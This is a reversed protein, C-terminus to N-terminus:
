KKVKFILVAPQQKNQDFFFANSLELKSRLPGQVYDTVNQTQDHFANLVIYDAQNVSSDMSTLNWLVFKRQAYYVAYPDINEGLLVADQPTNDKIWLFAQKMQLYSTTKSKIMDNGFKLSSYAGFVLVIIIFAIALYKSYKKMYDSIISIAYSSILLFGAFSLFLYRDEAARLFFIFFTMPALLILILFLHSKIKKVKKISDFAIFVEFLAIFFGIFFFLAFIFTFDHSIFGLTYFAFGPKETASEAYVSAAPLISGHSMFNLLVFIILPIAGIIGAVWFSKNKLFKHKHEIIVFLLYIAGIIGYFYRTLIALSMFFISIAFYKTEIKQYSIIFFYISVLCFFLSPVDSMIRVTYFLHIWTVSLIFAAILGVKKDYLEKGILYIFFVSLISPLLGFVILSIFDSVDIRLLISWLFPVLPPRIIAEHQIFTTNTWLHFIMNKALSGFALTDWWHAQNKAINLFYVRIISALILIGFLIFKSQDNILSDIKYKIIKKKEEYERENNSIETSELEPSM